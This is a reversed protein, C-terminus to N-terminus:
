VQCNTLTAQRRWIRGRRAARAISRGRRSCFTSYMRLSSALEAQLIANVCLVSEPDKKRRGLTEEGTLLVKGKNREASAMIGLGTGIHCRYHQTVHLYFPPRQSRPHRDCVQSVLVLPPRRPIHGRIRRPTTLIARAM